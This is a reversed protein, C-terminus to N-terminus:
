SLSVYRPRTFSTFVLRTGYCSFKQSVFSRDVERSASQELKESRDTLQEKIDVTGVTATCLSHAARM